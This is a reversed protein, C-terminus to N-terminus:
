RRGEDRRFRRSLRTWDGRVSDLTEIALVKRADMPDLAGWGKKALVWAAGVALGFLGGFITIFIRPPTAHKEPFSPHDLLRVTPIEKAEQVKALEYQKTLAEYVAEAIKTRRYLDSYTVGLLPLNRISPYPADASAPLNVDRGTLQQLDRRLEAIRAEVSRVRVNEQGYIQRLGKLEAEAAILQGQLTAAADLMAKSQQSLDFTTNTSSFQGLNHASTDLEQKVVTLRQELFERERRASSTSLDTVLRNLEDIYAQCIAQARARDKDRVRITIIASKRDEVIDTNSELEKRASEWRNVWYVKRLDFRQVIADESTQSLMVGIFLQGPRNMGMLDGLSFGGFMDARGALSALMMSSTNGQEPPMLRAVSDYRSPIQLSVVAFILVGAVASCVLFGRRGLLTRYIRASASLAPPPPLEAVADPSFRSPTEVANDYRYDM